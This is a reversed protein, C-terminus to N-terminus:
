LAEPSIGIQQFIGLPAGGPVPEPRIEVLRDGQVRYFFYHELIQVRRFTAPVVPFGPLHLEATHTGGQRWEVAIVGDTRLEPEHDYYWDPFGSYLAKTM